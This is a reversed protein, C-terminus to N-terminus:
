RRITCGAVFSSLIWEQRQLESFMMICRTAWRQWGRMPLCMLMACLLTARRTFSPIHSASWATVCVFLADVQVHDRLPTSRVPSYKTCKPVWERLLAMGGGLLGEVGGGLMRYSVRQRVLGFQVEECIDVSCGTAGSTPQGWRATAGQWNGPCRRIRGM